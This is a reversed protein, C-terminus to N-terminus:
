GRLVSRVHLAVKVRDIQEPVPVWPPPRNISEAARVESAFASSMARLVSVEWPLLEVAALQAWAEIEAFSLRVPGSMGQEVYDMAQLYDLLYRVEDNLDPYYAETDQRQVEDIRPPM